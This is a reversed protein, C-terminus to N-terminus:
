PYNNAKADISEGDRPMPRGALKGVLQWRLRLIEASIKNAVM